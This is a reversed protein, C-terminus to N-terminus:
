PGEYSYQWPITKRDIEQSKEHKCTGLNQAPIGSYGKNPSGAVVSLSYRSDFSM